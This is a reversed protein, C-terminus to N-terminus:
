LLLDPFALVNSAFSFAAVEVNIEFNIHFPSAGPSNSLIDLTDSQVGRAGPIRDYRVVFDRSAGPPIDVPFAAPEILTFGRDGRAFRADPVTLLGDGTNSIRITDLVNDDCLIVQRM